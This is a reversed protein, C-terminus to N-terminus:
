VLQSLFGTLNATHHEVHPAPSADDAVHITRMQMQKPVALNRIDDEFMAARTPDIEAKAFIVEFAARDPKPHYDANEIGFVGDMLGDLGRGKLVNQAYPATGNTYVFKRGPLARIAAAMEPDVTLVSFDIDHVTELYPVPDLNNERMLGALTTGHKAWYHHRLYNAQEADVDLAGMVYDTMLAEIQDFLRVSPHYLTNDLDFVWTDVHSFADKIM